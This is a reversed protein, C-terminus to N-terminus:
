SRRSVDDSVLGYLCHDQWVGDIKLYRAALGERHFGNRELVRMSADNDPLCAAELRHLSLQEFVFPVVMRVAESMYGKGAFPVGMWYGLTCAQTVGRRVNSLSLGGVLRQDMSRYIFFAYGVEERWEKQYQRLRRRYATRTM